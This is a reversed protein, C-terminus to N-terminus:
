PVYGVTGGNAPPSPPGNGNGCVSDKAPPALTILYSTVAGDVCGSGTGLSTHGDGVHTLLVGKELQSALAQAWQYPTAPDATTGIVLIPPAGAAHLPGPQIVPPVPWYACVLSGWVLSAGFIPAQQAVRTAEAKYDALNTPYTSDVCNVAPLVSTLADYTGNDSRDTLADSMSLLQSGDGRAAAQLAKSLSPWLDPRYLGYAVGNLFLALTLQRSGVQLPHATVQQMLTMFAGRPNGGSSFPCGPVCANFYDGLEKEFGIAQQVDFQLGALSPDVAGDLVLARVRTPFLNAYEAGLFTGYSYGVYTLTAEGLAARVFDMDRATTMTDLHALFEKGYQRTCGAAFQQDAQAVTAIEADTSPAPNLSLYADLAPGSECALPQSSGVGRPDFAVIDFRRLLPPPLVADIGRVFDM